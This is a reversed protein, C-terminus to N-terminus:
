VFISTCNINAEAAADFAWDPFSGLNFMLSGYTNIAINTTLICIFNMPLGAKMMYGTTMTSAEFVIAAPATAVPLMFAYCCTIVSSLVPFLFFLSKIINTM